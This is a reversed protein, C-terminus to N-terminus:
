WPQFIPPFIGGIVDDPVAPKLDEAKSSRRGDCSTKEPRSRRQSFSMEKPSRLRFIKLGSEYAAPAPAVLKVSGKIRILLM